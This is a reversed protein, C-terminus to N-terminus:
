VCAVLLFDWAELAADSGWIVNIPGQDRSGPGEALTTDHSFWSMTSQEHAPNGGDNRLRGPLVDVSLGMSSVSFPSCCNETM